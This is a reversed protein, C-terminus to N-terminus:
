SANSFARRLSLHQAKVQESSVHFCLHPNPGPRVKLSSSICELLFVTLKNLLKREECIM